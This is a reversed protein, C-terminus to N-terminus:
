EPSPLQLLTPLHRAPPNGQSLMSDHVQRPSWRPSTAQVRRAVDRVQTFGVHYTSLQTSTLQARRWKGAAESEEQFGRGTMLAMADAQSLEDCHVRVDLIANIASRLRMKLQQMRIEPGGFGAELMAEEAYVAWGEVFPGSWFAKRVMTPAEARRSHSLQLVHGPMAEHIVLNRLAHVNYERYFSAVREPSWDSPTPSIAFFTMANPPDLPGPPDCYAIAVGRHIEPMVIVEFPDDYMTVLDHERVFATTEAIAENTVALVTDDTPADLGLRDLVERATGGLAGAVEALHQETAAVDDLAAQLVEEPSMEVDLVLALKRAFTDRGLRPDGAATALEANLWAIHATLADFAGQVAPELTGRLDPVHELEGSIDDLLGLTGAFQGIATEVHVRPMDHLVARAVELQEPIQTLRAGVNRLRDSLPAFDRALLLYLATGPNAILPNWTHEGDDAIEFLRERLRSDLIEADVRHGVPLDADDFRRIEALRAAVVAREEDLAAPSLDDLRDDFRHDGLSTALVPQRALMDDIATAAFAEFTQATETV